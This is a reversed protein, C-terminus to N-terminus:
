NEPLMFKVISAWPLYNVHDITYFYLLVHSTCLFVCQFKIIKFAGRVGVGWLYDIEFDCKALHFIPLVVCAVFYGVQLAVQLHM